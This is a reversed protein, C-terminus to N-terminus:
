TRRGRYHGIWDGVRTALQEPLRTMGPRNREIWDGLRTLQQQVARTATPRDRRDRNHEIWDDVLTAIQEVEGTVEPRYPADLLQRGPGDCFRGNGGHTDLFRLWAEGTLAAVQHRPFVALAYRRLLKSLQRIFRANDDSSALERRLRKLERRAHRAAASGSRRLALWWTAVAAAALLLILLVWWGAAPPWWAIPDPMHYARLAALPDGTAGPDIPPRPDM